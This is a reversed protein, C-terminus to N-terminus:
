ARLHLRRRPHAEQREDRQRPRDGRRQAGQPDGSVGDDAAQDGARHKPRGEESANRRIEELIGEEAAPGLPLGPSRDLPLPDRPLEGDRRRGGARIFGTRLAVCQRAVGRRAVRRRRAVACVARVVGVVGGARAAGIAGLACVAGVDGLPRIEGIAGSAFAKGVGDRGGPARRGVLRLPGQADRRRQERRQDQQADGPGTSSAVGGAGDGDPEPGRPKRRRETKHEQPPASLREVIGRREPQERREGDSRPPEIRDVACRGLARLVITRRKEDARAEDRRRDGGRQRERREHLRHRQKRSSTTRAM